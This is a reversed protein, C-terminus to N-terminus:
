YYGGYASAMPMGYQVPMAGAALRDMAVQGQMGGQRYQAWMQQEQVLLQQKREMEAMQVYAPPPVGMSAAFPDGGTTRATGDPAPLALVPARRPAAVSSASGTAAEHAGVQQRVAGQDYMGHLLLPDLGGGMSAKQRSLKSATEVLALEWEAKGAEAAPTQWASTVEAADDSPFAVWGGNETGSFLALALKNEQEDEVVPERLDVLDGTQPPPPPPAMQEPAVKEPASRSPEAAHHEPAPLAKIGNMDLEDSQATQQQQQQWPPPSSHGARGRERVFQELTELLKDDIRKVDAFDAPRALRVDDCWGYFALLDDTQKATSVHAEFVKVCDPYDMDFFRDLLVALVVAVDSCLQTSEKVVPYLTALVVRSQRAGGSPRCALVRDLLQRLQLARGLLAETDMEQVTAATSGRPPSGTEDAFRVTRPAPLLSILFRARHDLYLAYARVFASHDWSASHAEDRFEALLALMPEGRRGAPRVLEHRFHPDGDAVLRHALALCKAAVVYDRTRSLRRSLSAACAATYPRSHATLTVVERVHRDEAPADEHSTARVIAVDLEPAIAASVKAIGISTQDKVAGLAKRISM